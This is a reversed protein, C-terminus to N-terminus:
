PSFLESDPPKESFKPMKEIYEFNFKNIGFAPKSPLYFQGRAANESVRLARTLSRSAIGALGDRELPRCNRSSKRIKKLTNNMGLDFAIEWQLKKPQNAIEYVLELDTALTKVQFSSQVLEYVSNKHAHQQDKRSRRFHRMAHKLSETIAEFNGDVPISVLISLPNGMNPRTVSCYAEIAPLLDEVSVSEGLQMVGHFKWNVGSIQPAFLRPANTDWWEVPSANFVDGFDEYIELVRDFDDMGNPIQDQTIENCWYRHALQYSPSIRLYQSWMVYRLDQPLEDPEEYVSINRETM